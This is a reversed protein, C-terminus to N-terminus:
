VCELCVCQLQVQVEVRIQNLNLTGSAAHVCNIVIREAFLFTKKNKTMIEILHNPSM